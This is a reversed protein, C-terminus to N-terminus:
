VKDETVEAVAKLAVIVDAGCVYRKGCYDFIPMLGSQRVRRLATTGLGLAAASGAPWRYLREPAVMGESRLVQLKYRKDM